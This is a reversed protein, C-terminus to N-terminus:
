GIRLGLGLGLGSEYGVWGMCKSRWFTSNTAFLGFFCDIRCVGTTEVGKEKQFVSGLKEKASCM